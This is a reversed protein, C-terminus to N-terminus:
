AINKLLKPRQYFSLYLIRCKQKLGNVTHTSICYLSLFYPCFNFHKFVFQMLVSLSFFVYFVLQYSFLLHSYSSLLLRRFKLQEKLFALGKLLCHFAVHVIWSSGLGILILLRCTFCLWAIHFCSIVACFGWVIYSIIHFLWYGWEEFDKSTILTIITNKRIILWVKQVLRKRLRAAYGYILFISETINWLLTHLFWPLLMWIQVVYSIIWFNQYNFAESIMWSRFIMNM